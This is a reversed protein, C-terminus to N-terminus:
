APGLPGSGGSTRVACATNACWARTEHQANKPPRHHSETQPAVTTGPDPVARDRPLRRRARPSPHRRHRISREPPRARRRARRDDTPPVPGWSAREPEGVDLPAPEDLVTVFRRESRNHARALDQQGHGTAEQRGLQIQRWRRDGLHVFADDPQVHRRLPDFGLTPISGAAALLPLGGLGYLEVVQLLRCPWRCSTRM